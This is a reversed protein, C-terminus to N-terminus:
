RRGSERREVLRLSLAEMPVPGPPIDLSCVFRGDAAVRDIPQSGLHLPRPALVLYAHLVFGAYSAAIEPSISLPLVLRGKGEEDSAEVFPDGTSPISLWLEEGNALEVTVSWHIESAGRPAATGEQLQFRTVPLATAEISFLSAFDPVRLQWDGSRVSADGLTVSGSVPDLFLLALTHGEWQPGLGRAHAVIDGSPEIVTESVTLRDPSGTPEAGRFALFSAAPRSLRQGMEAFIGRVVHSEGALIRRVADLPAGSQTVRRVQEFESPLAGYVIERLEPAILEGRSIEDRLGILRKRGSENRTLWDIVDKSEERNSWGMAFRALALPSIEPETGPPTSRLIAEIMRIAEPGLDM